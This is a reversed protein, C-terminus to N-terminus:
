QIAALSFSKGLLVKDMGRILNSESRASYHGYGAASRIQEDSAWVSARVQAKLTKGLNRQWLSGIRGVFVSSSATDPVRVIAHIHTRVGLSENGGLWSVFQLGPHYRRLETVTWDLARVIKEFAYTANTSWPSQKIAAANVVASDVRFTLPIWLNPNKDAAIAKELWAIM